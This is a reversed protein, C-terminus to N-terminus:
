CDGFDDLLTGYDIVVKLHTDRLKIYEELQEDTMEKRLALILRENESIQKDLRLLEGIFRNFPIIYPKRIPWYKMKYSLPCNPFIYSIPPSYERGKERWEKALAVKKETMGPAQYLAELKEQIENREKKLTENTAELQLCYEETKKM